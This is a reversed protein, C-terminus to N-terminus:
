PVVLESMSVRLDSCTNGYIPQLHENCTQNPLIVPLIHYKPDIDALIQENVGEMFKTFATTEFRSSCIIKGAHPKVPPLQPMNRTALSHNNSLSTASLIM